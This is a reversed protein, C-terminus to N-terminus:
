MNLDCRKIKATRVETSQFDRLEFPAFASIMSWDDHELSFRGPVM